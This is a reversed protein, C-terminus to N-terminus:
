MLGDMEASSLTIVSVPVDDVDAPKIMPRSAGPPIRDLNHMVRDYLKVMSDGKDEGVKFMVTVVGMANMSMGYTHDVGTMERLVMELPRIVLNQVEEPSAGQMKVIVNAAPVDIQPNEERPTILLAMVGILFILISLIPTLNSGMAAKGLKGAINLKINEDSM